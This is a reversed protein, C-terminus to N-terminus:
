AEYLFIPNKYFRRSCLFEVSKEEPTKQQQTFKVESAPQIAEMISSLCM